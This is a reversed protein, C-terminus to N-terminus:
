AKLWRMATAASVRRLGAVDAAAAAAEAPSRSPMSTGAMTRSAANRRAATASSASPSPMPASASTRSNRRHRRTSRARRYLRRPRVHRPRRAAVARLLACQRRRGRRFRAVFEPGVEYNPQRIAPGLAAVIRAREAGLKEMAAVTAEIVGTLAGRWGAHAAGIVGAERTPWCCRGATPPRSASPSGRCAPSSPTPARAADRADVAGRRGGRRAFPDSLRHAPAGARRRAGGGHARPEGRGQRARRELRRRWQAPTSAQRCAAARPHLLAHRIGPLAALLIAGPAHRRIARAAIRLSCMTSVRPLVGLQPHAFAPPRSCRRGHRHPGARHPAGLAADISARRTPTARSPRAAQAARQTSASVACSNAGAHGARATAGMAESRARWRRRFRCPRHPRRSGPASLPDAFAHEASRRCAHRRRRKRRPRLRDVLAAGGDRRPAPRARDRCRRRAMRLDRGRPASRLQRRCCASSSRRDSRARAHLRAQRRRRHEVLREHWGRETKVAQNCRCRTSSNTPSSSRRATRCTTSRRTGSCRRRRAAGADRQQQAECRRASKSWICARRRRPLGARGQGRAARREDHHRPRARARDIRVNEPAGMQQWVAAIWLGILEGFM